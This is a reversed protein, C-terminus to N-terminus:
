RGNLVAMIKQMVKDPMLERREEYVCEDRGSSQYKKRNDDAEELADEIIGRLEEYNANNDKAIISDDVQPAAEQSIM